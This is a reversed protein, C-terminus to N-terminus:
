KVWATCVRLLEVWWIHHDKVQLKLWPCCVCVTRFRELSKLSSCVFFFQLFIAPTQLEGRDKVQYISASLPVSGTRKKRPNTVQMEQVTRARSALRPRALHRLRRSGALDPFDWDRARTSVGEGGWLFGVSTRWMLPQWRWGWGYRAPDSRPRPVLGYASPAERPGWGGAFHGYRKSVYSTGAEHANLKHCEYTDEGWCARADDFVHHFKLCEIPTVRRLALAPKATCSYWKFVCGNKLRLGVLCNLTEHRSLGTRVKWRTFEPTSARRKINV